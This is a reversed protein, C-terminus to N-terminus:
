HLCFTPRTCTLPTVFVWVVFVLCAWCLLGRNLEKFNRGLIWRYYRRQLPTMEVRLVRENKPPLSREVDKIVRRLLFPKLRAHLEGVSDAADLRHEAEFADADGFAGPQLFHMLAWLERLSNQLPTGTVLLKNKFSWGALEQYLASEADSCGGTATGGATGCRM